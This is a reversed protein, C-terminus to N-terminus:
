SEDRVRPSEPEIALRCCIDSVSPLPEVDAKTRGHRDIGNRNAAGAKTLMDLPKGRAHIQLAVYVDEARDTKRYPPCRIKVQTVAGHQRPLHRRSKERTGEQPPPRSSEADNAPNPLPLPSGARPPTYGHHRPTNAGWGLHAPRRPPRGRSEAPRRCCRRHEAWSRRVGRLPRATDPAQRPRYNCSPRGESCSDRQSPLRICSRMHQAPSVTGRRRSVSSLLTLTSTTGICQNYLSPDVTSTCCDRSPSPLKRAAAPNAWSRM